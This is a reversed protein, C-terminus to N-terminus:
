QEWGSSLPGSGAVTTNMNAGNSPGAGAIDGNDFNPSSRDEPLTRNNHRQREAETLNRAENVRESSTANSAPRTWTTNRSNHDVYYTRSLHDVRREWGSPLPGYQDEFPSLNENTANPESNADNNTSDSNETRGNILEPPNVSSQSSQGNIRNRAPDMELYPTPAGTATPPGDINTSLNIMLKGSVYENSNSKKLDNTLIEDGGLMIDFVDGVQINIVGLFGQDKKKFKKQDFIQIAVVSNNTANVIFNENWYPNLTKKLAGTTHTQEGDVTIVAFPDPLRFLDRKYLGEAAIVTVKIKRHESFSSSTM